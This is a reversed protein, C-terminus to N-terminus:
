LKEKRLTVITIAATITASTVASAESAVTTTVIVLHTVKAPAESGYVPGRGLQLTKLLVEIDLVLSDRTERLSLYFIEPPLLLDLHAREGSVRKKRECEVLNLTAANRSGDSREILDSERFIEHGCNAGLSERGWCRDLALRPRHRQAASIEHGDGLGSASLRNRKGQRRHQVDVRLYERGKYIDVPSLTLNLWGSSLGPSPGM